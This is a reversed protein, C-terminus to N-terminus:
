FAARQMMGMELLDQATKGPKLVLKRAPKEKVVDVAVVATAEVAVEVAVEAAAEPQTEQKLSVTTSWPTDKSAWTTAWLAYPVELVSPAAEPLPRLRMHTSTHVAAFWAVQPDQKRTAPIKAISSIRVRGCSLKASEMNKQILVGRTEHYYVDDTLLRMAINRALRAKLAMKSLLMFLLLNLVALLIQTTPM